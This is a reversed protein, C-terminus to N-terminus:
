KYVRRRTDIFGIYRKWFEEIAEYGELDGREQTPSARLNKSFGELIHIHIQIHISYGVMRSAAFTFFPYILLSSGLRLKWAKDM